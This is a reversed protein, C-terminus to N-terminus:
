KSIMRQFFIRLSSNRKGNTQKPSMSCKAALKEYSGGKLFCILIATMNDCGLDDM